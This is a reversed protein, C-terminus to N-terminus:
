TKAYRCILLQIIGFNLSETAPPPYESVKVFEVKNETLKTKTKNRSKYNYTPIAAAATTAGGRGGGGGRGAVLTKKKKKKKKKGKRNKVKREEEEKREKKEKTRERERKRSSIQNNREDQLYTDINYAAPCKAPTFGTSVCFVIRSM